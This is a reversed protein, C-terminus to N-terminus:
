ILNKEQALREVMDLNDEEEFEHFVVRSFSLQEFLHEKIQRERESFYSAATFDAKREAESRQNYIINLDRELVHIPGFEAEGCFKCHKIINM